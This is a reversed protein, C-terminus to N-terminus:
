FTSASKEHCSRKNLISRLTEINEGVYYHKRITEPSNGFMQATLVFNGNSNNVVETIANRRFAHTGRICEKSVKIGIKNCMRHFYQYVMNNTICGNKSQAPFLYPSDPYYKEDIEKLKELFEKELDAIPYYRSKGNKTYNCIYEADVQKKQMSIQERHVYITGHEFDVDTWLLPPIEGRRMGTLIQFELALAPTYSPRTKQTNAIYDRIKEIEEESYGRETVPTPQCQLKKYDKWIIRAAPNEPIWDMYAARKFTMNVIGRISEMGKKTLNYKKMTHRVMSDIDKLTIDKIPYGAFATGEFFRKFDSANKSITNNRSQQREKSVNHKEFDQAFEFADQFSIFDKVVPLGKEYRYVKDKLNELNKDRLQKRGTLSLDDKVYVRYYGQKDPKTPFTYKSLVNDHEFTMLMKRVGDETLNAGLGSKILDDLSPETLSEYPASASRNTKDKTM